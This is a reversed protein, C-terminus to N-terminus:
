QRTELCLMLIESVTVKQRLLVCSLLLYVNSEGYSWDNQQM